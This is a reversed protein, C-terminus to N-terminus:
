LTNEALEGRSERIRAEIWQQVEIELWAVAGPSIRIPQPFLGAKVDRQVTSKGLGTRRSVEPLRILSTAVM